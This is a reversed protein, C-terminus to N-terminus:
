AGLLALPPRTSLQVPQSPSAVATPPPRRSPTFLPRERSAKFTTLPRAWLPNGLAEAGTAPVNAVIQRQKAPEPVARQGTPLEAAGKETLPDQQSTAPAIVFTALMAALTARRAKMRRGTMKGEAM